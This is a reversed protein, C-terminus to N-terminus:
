RKDEVPALLNFSHKFDSLTCFFFGHNEWPLKYRETSGVSSMVCYFWVFVLIPSTVLFWLLFAYKQVVLM